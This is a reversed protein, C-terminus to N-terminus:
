PSEASRELRGEREISPDGWTQDRLRLMPDKSVIDRAVVDPRCIASCTKRYKRDLCAQVFDERTGSAGGMIAHACGSLYKECQRQRDPPDCAIRPVEQLVTLLVMPAMLLLLLVTLPWFERRWSREM